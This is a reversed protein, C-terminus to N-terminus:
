GGYHRFITIGITLVAVIVMMATLFSVANDVSSFIPISSNTASDVVVEEVVVKEKGTDSNMIWMVLGFLVVCGLIVAGFLYFKTQQM